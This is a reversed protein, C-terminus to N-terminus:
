AEKVKNEKNKRSIASAVYSYCVGILISVGISVVIGYFRNFGCNEYLYFFLFQHFLYLAMGQKALAVVIKNGFLVDMLLSKYTYTYYVLFLYVVTIFQVSLQNRQYFIIAFLILASIFEQGKIKKQEVDRILMGLLMGTTYELIRFCPSIYFFWIGYGDPLKLTSRLIFMFLILLLLVLQVNTTKIKNLLKYLPPSILYCFLLSSIFWAVGVYNYYFLDTSSSPIYSQLLLIHPLIDWDVTVKRLVICLILSLWYLPFIKFLKKRYYVGMKEPQKYLFGSLVFFFTCILWGEGIFKMNAHMFAIGILFLLRLGQFNRTRENM